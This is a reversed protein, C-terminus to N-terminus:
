EQATALYREESQQTLTEQLESGCIDCRSSIPPRRYTAGCGKCKFAQSAYKKMNGMVDRILHTRIISEVVEKTSVAEIKDAVEIQKAIKEALTRLTYYAGRSSEITICYNAHTLSL